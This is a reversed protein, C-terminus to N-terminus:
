RVGDVIDKVLQPGKYIFGTYIQVLNAGADLKEQADQASFIGGVGIIPFDAGLKARFKRLVETSHEKLPQGSLGGAEHGYIHTKVAERALTTNSVILGPVEHKLLLNSIDDIQHEELDPAVKLFLPPNKKYKACLAKYTDMLGALFASLAKEEQLDRLGKTNPSSINATLYDAYPFVATMAIVYDNIAEEAPTDKNKGINVGLPGTFHRKKLHDLMPELGDNNFGMRNIIANHNTLRFLRPQPNGPQPKPTVTGVEIFGFGLSGLPDIYTANKDLGAALGVKNPFELGALTVSSGKLPESPGTLKLRYAKKLWKLSYHHSTEPSMRFLIAKTWDYPILRQIRLPNSLSSM